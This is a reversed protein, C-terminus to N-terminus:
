KRIRLIMVLGITFLITVFSLILMSFNLDLIMVASFYQIAIILYIWKRLTIENLKSLIWSGMPAFIVVVPIALVLYPIAIHVQPVPAIWFNNLSFIVSTIAMHIVSTYTAKKVCEELRFVLFAFLLFDAGSGILNSVLVGVITIILLLFFDMKKMPQLNKPSYKEQIWFLILGCGFWFSAFFIKITASSVGLSVQLNLFGGVICIPVTWKLIDWRVQDKVKLYIMVSAASMGFSQIGLSFIAATQGLETLLYTMVPFAVVGGGMPTSGAVLAGIVMTPIILIYAWWSDVTVTQYLLYWCVFGVLLFIAPLLFYFRNKLQNSFSVM